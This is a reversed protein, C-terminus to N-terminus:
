NSLIFNVDIPALVQPGLDLSALHPHVEGLTKGASDRAGLFTIRVEPHGSLFRILEGGAYGSAGLVAVPLRSADM